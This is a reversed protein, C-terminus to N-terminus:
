NELQNYAKLKITFEACKQNNIDVNSAIITGDVDDIIKKAINLGLGMGSSESKNSSFPIFLKDLMDDAIGGGNDIFRIIIDDNQKFINIKIFKDEFNKDQKALEDLANNLLVVWVQEVRQKEVFTIYEEKDKDISLSFLEDNIYIKTIHKSRNYIMILANSITSYINTVEPINKATSAVERTANVISAVRSIAEFLTAFSNEFEYRSLDQNSSLTDIDMKLMELNGKLYTLPTNIEHTIGAALKGISKLKISEIQEERLVKLEDVQEQLKINLNKIDETRNKVEEELDKNYKLLEKEQYIHKTVRHILRFMSELKYPKEIFGEVNLDILKNLYTAENHASMVLLTQYEQIGRILTMMEIGDMKPMNIDSMVIDYYKQNKDFFEQYMQLGDKGDNAIDIHEFLNSLLIKLHESLSRDDEVILISFDKAFEKIELLLEKDKESSFV